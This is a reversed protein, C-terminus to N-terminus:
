EYDFKNKRFKINNVLEKDNSNKISIKTSKISISLDKFSKFFRTPIERIITEGKFISEIEHFTLSNRKVGAFVSSDIYSYWEDPLYSNYPSTILEKCTYGYQKIGLFYANAIIEGKLEDKMLGLYKCKGVLNDPLKNTTFISDTDTYLVDSNDIFDIMHIRSYATVAAALAVNSKVQSYHNSIDTEFYINLKKIIDYNINNIILNAVINENIEIVSKIIKTTLYNPLENRYINITQILEQKRGFIGYLQNLHM